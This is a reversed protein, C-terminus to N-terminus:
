HVVIEGEEVLDSEQTGRLPSRILEEIEERFTYEEMEKKEELAGGEM